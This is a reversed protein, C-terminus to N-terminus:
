AITLDEKRLCDPSKRVIKVKWIPTVSVFQNRQILRRVYMELNKVRLAPKIFAIAEKILLEGLQYAHYCTRSGDDPAAM